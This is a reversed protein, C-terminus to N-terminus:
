ASSVGCTDKLNMKSHPSCNFAKSFPSFEKLVLNCAPTVNKPSTNGCLSYCYAIFFLQEPTYQEMRKVGSYWSGSEPRRLEARMSEFASQMAILEYFLHKDCRVESWFQKSSKKSWWSMAYGSANLHIGHEDFAKVVQRAIIAGVGGFNLPAIGDHYFLPELLANLGIRVTNTIYDYEGTDSSLPNLLDKREIKRLDNRLAKYAVHSKIWFAIFFKEESPFRDYAEITTYKQSPWISSELASLKESLSGLTVADTRFMRHVLNTSVNAITRVLKDVDDQDRRNFMQQVYGSAVPTKHVRLVTSLCFSPDNFLQGDEPNKSRRMSSKVLPLYNQVFLWSIHALLEERTYKTFFSSIMKLLVNNPAGVEDRFEFLIKPELHENLSSLWLQSPIAPTLQGIDELRTVVAHRLDSEIARKLSTLIDIEVLRIRSVSMRSVNLGLGHLVGEVYEQYKGSAEVNRLGDHFLVVDINEAVIIRRPTSSTRPTVSIEFWLKVQWNAALDILLDFPHLQKPFALSWTMGRDAMFERFLILSEEDNDERICAEYMANAKVVVSSERNRLIRVVRKSWEYRADDVTSKSGPHVPKWDSCVFAAFDDCPNINSNLQQGVTLAFSTCSTTDCLGTRFQGVMFLGSRIMMSVVFATLAAVLCVGTIAMIVRRRIARKHADSEEVSACSSYLLDRVRKFKDHHSQIPRDQPPGTEFTLPGRIDATM